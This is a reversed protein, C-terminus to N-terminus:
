SQETAPEVKILTGKITVDDLYLGRFGGTWGSPPEDFSIVIQVIKASSFAAWATSGSGGAPIAAWQAITHDNGFGALAPDNGAYRSYFADLARM